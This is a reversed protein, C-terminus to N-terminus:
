GHLLTEWVYRATVGAACICVAGLLAIETEAIVRRWGSLPSRWDKM